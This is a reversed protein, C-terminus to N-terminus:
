DDGYLWDPFDPDYDYDYDYEPEPRVGAPPDYLRVAYDFQTPSIGVLDGLAECLVALEAVAQRHSDELNPFSGENSEAWQRVRRKHVEETAGRAAAIVRQRM